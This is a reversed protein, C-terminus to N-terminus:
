QYKFVQFIQLFLLRIPADAAHHRSTDKNKLIGKKPVKAASPSCGDHNINDGEDEQENPRSSVPQTIAHVDSMRTRNDSSQHALSHVGSFMANCQM